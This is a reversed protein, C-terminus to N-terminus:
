PKKKEKKRKNKEKLWNDYEIWGGYSEVYKLVKLTLDPHTYEFLKQKIKFDPTIVGKTDVILTEGSLLFVSFDAIYKIPHFKKDNKKFSPQLTFSPKLDFDIISGQEKEKLLHLYYNAELMSDFKIDNIVIKNAGYKSKTQNISLSDLNFSYIFGEELLANLKRYYKLSDNNKFIIGNIEYIKKERKKKSTVEKKIATKVM